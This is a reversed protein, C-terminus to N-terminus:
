LAEMDYNRDGSVMGGGRAIGGERVLVDM